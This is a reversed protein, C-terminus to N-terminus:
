QNQLYAFYGGAAILVSVLISGSIKLVKDNKRRFQVRDNYQLFPKDNPNSSKISDTVDQGGGFNWSLASLTLCVGSFSWWGLLLSLASSKIGPALRDGSDSVWRLQYSVASVIFLSIVEAYAIVRGGSLELKGRLEELQSASVKIDDPLDITM